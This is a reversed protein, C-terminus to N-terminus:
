CLVSGTCSGSSFGLMGFAESGLGLYEDSLQQLNPIKEKVYLM